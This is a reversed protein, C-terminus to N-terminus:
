GEHGGVLPFKASAPWDNIAAHLDTHCIGSYIIKVLCEGRKLKQPTPIDKIQVKGGPGDVVAAKHQQPVDLQTERPDSSM